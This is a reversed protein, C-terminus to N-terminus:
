RRHPDEEGLIEIESAADRNPKNWHVLQRLSQTLDVSGVHAYFSRLSLPLPGLRQEISRLRQEVDSRPAVHTANPGNFRYGLASLPPVLIDINDKVRRMTEDAVARAEAFAVGHRVASGLEALENWVAACEGGRHRGLWSMGFYGRTFVHLPWMTLACTLVV